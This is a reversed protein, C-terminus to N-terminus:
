THLTFHSIPVPLHPAIAPATPEIGLLHLSTQNKKIRKNRKPKKTTIQKTKNQKTKNQKTKNQKTKNQKTKSKKEKSEKGKRQKEHMM